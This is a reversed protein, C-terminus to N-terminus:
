KFSKTFRLAEDGLGDNNLLEFGEGIRIVKVSSVVDGFKSV